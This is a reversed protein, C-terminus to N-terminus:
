NVVTLDGTDHVIQGNINLTLHYIYVGSNVLNNMFTGNWGHSSDASSINEQFFVQSGWRDYITLSEITLPLGSRVMFVNNQLSSPSIINPVYYPPVQFCTPAAICDSDDCDVLGDGDNDLGDNCLEDCPREPELLVPNMSFPIACQTNANRIFVHYSGPTLASFIPDQVFTMGSDISYEINSQNVLFEIQGDNLDPCIVPQTILVDEIRPTCNEDLCDVLGDGDNDIGDSCAEETTESCDPETFTLSSMFSCSLVNNNVAIFDYSGVQINEFITDSVFTMGGDISFMTGENAGAIRIIGEPRFCEITETSVTLIGPSCEDDMCDLLGDEDNDIGDGCLEETDEALIFCSSYNANPIVDTVTNPFVDLTANDFSWEQMIDPFVNLAARSSDDSFNVQFCTNPSTIDEIKLDFCVRITPYWTGMTDMITGMGEEVFTLGWDFLALPTKM